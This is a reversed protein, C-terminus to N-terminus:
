RTEARRRWVEWGSEVGTREFRAGLDSRVKDYFVACSSTAYTLTGPADLYVARRDSGDVADLVGEYLGRTTAQWCFDVVPLASFVGSLKPVLYSDSTLYIPPGEEAAKERIFRAREELEGAGPGALWV